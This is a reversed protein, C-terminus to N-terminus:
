PTNRSRTAGLWHRPGRKGTRLILEVIAIIPENILDVVAVELIPYVVKKEQIPFVGIDSSFTRGHQKMLVAIIKKENPKSIM